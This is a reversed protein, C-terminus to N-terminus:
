PTEMEEIRYRYGNRWLEVYGDQPQVIFGTETLGELFDALDYLRQDRELAEPLVEGEPEARRRLRERCPGCLIAKGDKGPICACGFGELDSDGATRETPLVPDTNLQTM